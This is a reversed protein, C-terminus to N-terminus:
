SKACIDCCNNSAVYPHEHCLIFNRFLLQRRCETSNEAYHIMEESVHRKNGYMLIAYAQEGDRGARGTEQVYQEIEGPAGFHIIRRVNPCDIGMGFATTAIIVKLRSDPMSFSSVIKEKLECTTARTYMEVIRYSHRNPYGVPDTFHKGLQLQLSLYVNSCDQYRHCFIITKLIGSLSLIDDCLDSTFEDVTKLPTASYMINPRHPSIGIINPSMMGLRQIVASLTVSTATATLAM